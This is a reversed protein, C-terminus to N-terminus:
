LASTPLARVGTSTAQNRLACFYGRIAMSPQMLEAAKKWVAGSLEDCGQGRVWCRVEGLYTGEPRVQNGEVKEDPM